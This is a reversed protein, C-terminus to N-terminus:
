NMIMLEYIIVAHLPWQINQISYIYLDWTDKRLVRANEQAETIEKQKVPSWSHAFSAFSSSQTKLYVVICIDMAKM